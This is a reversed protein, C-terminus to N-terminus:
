LQLLTLISTKQSKDPVPLRAEPGAPEGTKSFDKLGRGNGLSIATLNRNEEHRDGFYLDRGGEIEAYEISALWGLGIECGCVLKMGM